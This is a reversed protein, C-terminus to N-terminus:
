LPGKTRLKVKAVDLSTDKKRVNIAHKRKFQVYIKIHTIAAVAFFYKTHSTQNKGRFSRNSRYTRKKHIRNVDFSENPLRKDVKDAKNEADELTQTYTLFEEVTIDPNLFVIDAINIM